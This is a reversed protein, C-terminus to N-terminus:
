AAQPVAGRAGRGAVAAAGVEARAQKCPRRPGAHAFDEGYPAEYKAEDKFDVRYRGPLQWRSADLSVTYPITSGWPEEEDESDNSSDDSSVSRYHFRMAM